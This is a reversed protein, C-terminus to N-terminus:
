VQAMNSLYLHVGRCLPCMGSLRVEVFLQKVKLM